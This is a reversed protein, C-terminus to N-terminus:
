KRVNYDFSFEIDVSETSGAPLPAFPAATMVAQLAAKDCAPSGSSKVLKLNHIKGTKGVSFQVKLNKSSFEESPRWHKKIKTQVAQMYGGWDIENKSIKSRPAAVQSQQKITPKSLLGAIPNIVRSVAFYGLILLFTLALIRASRAGSTDDTILKNKFNSDNM